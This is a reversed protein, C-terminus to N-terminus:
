FDNFVKPEFIYAMFPKKTQKTKKNKGFTQYNDASLLNPGM